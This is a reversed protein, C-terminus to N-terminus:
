LLHESVGCKQANHGRGSGGKAKGRMLACFLPMKSNLTLFAAPFSANQVISKFFVPTTFLPSAFDSPRLGSTVIMRDSSVNTSMAFPFVVPCFANMVPPSLVFPFMISAVFSSPTRLTHWNDKPQPAHQVARTILARFALRLQSSRRM